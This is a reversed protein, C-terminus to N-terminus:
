QGKLGIRQEAAMRAMKAGPRNRKIANGQNTRWGRADYGWRGRHQDASVAISMVAMAALALGSGRRMCVVNTM